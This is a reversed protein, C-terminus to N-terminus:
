KLKEHLVPTAYLTFCETFGGFRRRPFYKHGKVLEHLERELSKASHKSECSIRRFEITCYGATQFDFYRNDPNNSYGIKIFDEQADYIRVIYVFHKGFYHNVGFIRNMCELYLDEIDENVHPKEGNFFQFIANFVQGVDQYDVKDILNILNTPLLFAKVEFSETELTFKMCYGGALSLHFPTRGPFVL